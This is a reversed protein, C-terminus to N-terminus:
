ISRNMIANYYGTIFVSKSLTEIEDILNSMCEKTSIMSNFLSSSTDSRDAVVVLECVSGGRVGIWEDEQFVINPDICSIVSSSATRLNVEGFWM